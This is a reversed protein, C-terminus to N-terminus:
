MWRTPTPTGATARPSVDTHTITALYKRRRDAFDRGLRHLGRRQPHGAPARRLRLAKDLAARSGAYVAGGPEPARWAPCRACAPSTRLSTKATKRPLATLKRFRPDTVHNQM